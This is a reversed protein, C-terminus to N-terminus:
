TFDKLNIDYFQKNIRLIEEFSNFTQQCFLEILVPPASANLVQRGFTTMSFYALPWNVFYSSINSLYDLIPERQWIIVFVLTIVGVTIAIEKKHDVAYKFWSSKKKNPDEEDDGM